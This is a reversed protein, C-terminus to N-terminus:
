KLVKWYGGKSPGVRKIKQSAKLKSFDRKITKEALNLNKSLQTITIKPNLKINEVIKIFRKEQVNKPVNKPVNKERELVVRFWNSSIEFKVKPFLTKIRNIGSGIKEVFGTRLMCDAIIPNRTMSVKGLEKKDFLLKGPNAIEVKDPFIEILIRGELFYDKHIMANIIIERLVEESIEQTEIREKGKIKVVTRTNRLVFLVANNFNSIFDAGFEKKDLMEVKNNKKYLVCSIDASMFFNTVKKSFLLVCANNPNNKTLLNLNNLIHKVPLSNTINAKKIFSQFGISDFNDKLSFSSDIKREFSIKNSNQFFDQIEDRKLKQSNAGQRLYFQGSISYPKDKGEFVYIVGINKILKFDIKISPDTNRAIAQIQSIIVNSPAFGKITKNDKVGILIKGGSANAFACIEKGISNNFSEKFELTYGEGTKILELLENIEM